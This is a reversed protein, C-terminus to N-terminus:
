QGGEFFALLGALVWSAWLPSTIAIWPWDIISVIKMATFGGSLMFTAQFLARGAEEDSM